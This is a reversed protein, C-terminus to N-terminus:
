KKLASRSQGAVSHQHSISGDENSFSTASTTFSSASGNSLTNIGVQMLIKDPDVNLLDVASNTGTSADPSGKAAAAADAKKKFLFIHGNTNIM